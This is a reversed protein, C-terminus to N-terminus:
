EVFPRWARCVFWLPFCQGVVEAMIQGTWYGINGVLEMGYRAEVSYWCHSGERPRHSGPRGLFSDRPPMSCFWQGYVLGWHHLYCCVVRLVLRSVLCHELGQQGVASAFQRRLSGCGFYSHILNPDQCAISYLGVWCFSYMDVVEVWLWCLTLGLLGPPTPHSRLHLHCVKRLVSFGKCGLLCNQQLNAWCWELVM